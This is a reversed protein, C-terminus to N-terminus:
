FLGKRNVQSTQAPRFMRFTLLASIVGPPFSKSRDLGLMESTLPILGYEKAGVFAEGPTALVVDAKAMSKDLGIWKM